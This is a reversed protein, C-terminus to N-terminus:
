FPLEMDGVWDEPSVLKGQRSQVASASLPPDESRRGGESVFGRVARGVLDGREDLWLEVDGIYVQRGDDRRKGVKRHVHQGRKLAAMEGARTCPCPLGLVPYVGWFAGDAAVALAFKGKSSEIGRNCFRCILGSDM